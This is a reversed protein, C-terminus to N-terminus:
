DDFIPKYDANKKVLVFGELVSTLPIWEETALEAREGESLLVPTTHTQFGTITKPRGAQGVTDLAQGVRVDVQVPSMDEVNFMMLMRPKMATVFLYLLYHDRELILGSMDLCSHLVALLGGMSMSDFLRKHTHFPSLTMTGKGLHLLGQAIRVIFVTDPDKYYYTSLNRLMGATRSNNSGAGIMGLALIANRAVDVDNDHSLKSLTDMVALRPNSVSHLGLALPIARRIAPEGYQLLHDFTRLAMDSGIEEGMSILAIGLVAVAQHQAEEAKEIRNTCAHLMEQVKLVNGTGAYACTELTICAYKDVFNLTKVTELTVEVEEQRGFYLLGLGLCAFRTYTSKLDTEERAMLAEIINMSLDGNCTGCFILGLSLCVLGLLEMPLDPSDLLPALIEQLDERRTGAYALGLGLIAGVRLNMNEDDVFESLLALAPDCENRVGCNLIGVGLLAGARVHEDKMHTFKDLENIGNLVDWQLVMGLSASASMMGHGKNRYVWKAGDDVMLKDQCFGANVFANVFTDSLNKRASDVKTNFRSEMLHSKYIDEPTKTEMVDLERGLSLFHESLNANGVIDLLEDDEPEIMFMRQRGLIYALQKKVGEDACSELIKEAEETNGMRLAVILSDTHQGMRQLIALVVKFIDTDEPEPVYQACTELYLCVRRYNTDTVHAHITDLQEVEMLLDCAEHEAHHTMNFPVIQEVLSLLDDVPSGAESRQVFEQAIEKSLHRLFEHGWQGINEQSGMLKYKLADRDDDKAMTMSLVAVIDCIAKRNSGQNSDALKKIGEYHPRLFKLPKPVSTMSSTSTRIKEELSALAAAQLGENEDHIREVLLELDEKIQLDEDSLETEVEGKKKGKSKGKKGGRVPGLPSAEGKGKEAKKGEATVADVSEV